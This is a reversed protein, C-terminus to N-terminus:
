CDKMLIKQDKLILNTSIKPPITAKGTDSLQEVVRAGAGAAAYVFGYRNDKAKANADTSITPPLRKEKVFITKFDRDMM